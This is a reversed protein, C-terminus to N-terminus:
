TFGENLNYILSVKILFFLSFLFSFSPIFSPFVGFSKDNAVPYLEFKEAHRLLCEVIYGYGLKEFSLGVVRRVYFEEGILSVCM